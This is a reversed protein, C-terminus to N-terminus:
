KGRTGATRKDVVVKGGKIVVKAKLRNWYGELPDGDLLVIDAITQGATTAPRGPGASVIEGGRVVISGREVVTADPGIIRVNTITLDQARLPTRTGSLLVALLVASGTLFTHRTM